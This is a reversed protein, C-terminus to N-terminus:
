LIADMGVQDIISVMSYDYATLMSKKEVGDKM